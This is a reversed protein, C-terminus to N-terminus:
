SDYFDGNEDYGCNPNYYEDEGYGASGLADADADVDDRFSDERPEFDDENEDDDDENDLEDSVSHMIKGGLTGCACSYSMESCIDIGSVVCYLGTAQKILTVPRTGETMSFLIDGGNELVSDVAAKHAELM